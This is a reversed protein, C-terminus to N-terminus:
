KSRRELKLLARVVAARVPKARPTSRSRNLGALAARLQEADIMPPRTDAENNVGCVVCDGCRSVVVCHAPCPTKMSM